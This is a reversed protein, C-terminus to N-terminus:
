ENTLTEKWYELIDSLTRELSLSPQWDTSDRVARIDARMRRQEAPRMRQPDSIVRAEVNALQIL